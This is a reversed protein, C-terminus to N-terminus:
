DRNYKVKYKNKIEMIVHDNILLKNNNIIIREFLLKLDYLSDNVEDNNSVNFVYVSDEEKSFSSTYLAGELNEFQFSGEYLSYDKRKSVNLSTFQTLVSYIKNTKSLDKYEWGKNFIDRIYYTINKGLRNELLDNYIYDLLNDMNNKNDDETHINISKNFKERGKFSNSLNFISTASDYKPGNETISISSEQSIIKLSNDFGSIEPITFSSLHSLSNDYEKEPGLRKSMKKIINM